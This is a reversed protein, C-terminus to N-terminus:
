PAPRLSAQSPVSRKSARIKRYTATMEKVRAQQAPEALLNTREAPDNSLYYLAAPQDDLGLTLKWDGALVAHAMGDSGSKNPPNQKRSALFLENEHGIVPETGTLPGGKIGGDDFPGGGDAAQVLLSSRAPRSDVPRGFLVPVLSVADLCQDEPPRVGALELVTPVIDHIGVVQGRVVGAPIRGPWSVIFPVRHGGEAIYSKVGRLGGVSDHGLHRETAIGGNDSTVCILTNALLGRRALATQLQGLLIDTELVMDTRANLRTQGKLPVGRLAEAPEYPIHAGDACVYLYFPANTGREHNQALAWDLFKEAHDLLREGVESPHWNSESYGSKGGRRVLQDAPIAPVENELFLYPQNQHGLPIVFSYDFGWRKPGDTMPQSFDPEGDKMAHQGGIGSKGLM